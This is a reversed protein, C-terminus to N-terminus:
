PLCSIYVKLLNFHTKQKSELLKGKVEQKYYFWLMLDEKKNIETKEEYGERRVGTKM